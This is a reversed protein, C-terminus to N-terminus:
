EGSRINKLRKVRGVTRDALRLYVYESVVVLGVAAALFFAGIVYRGEVVNLVGVLAVPGAVVLTAILQLSRVIGFAM